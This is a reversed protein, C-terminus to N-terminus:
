FPLGFEKIFNEVDFVPCEKMWENKTIKGDGNLDPSYDRHGAVKKITPYKELRSLIYNQLTTMQAETFNFIAKGDKGIGGVLMVGLSNKNHGKCHAGAIHEPRGFELTGDTRILAHYGIDKWGRGKPKPDTHWKRVLNVDIHPLNQTASCHVIIDTIKRM